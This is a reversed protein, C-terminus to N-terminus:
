PRGRFVFPNWPTRRDSRLTGPAHRARLGHDGRAVGGSRGQRGPRGPVFHGREGAGPGLVGDRLVTAPFRYPRGVAPLEEVAVSFLHHDNGDKDSETWPGSRLREPAGDGWHNESLLWSRVFEAVTRRCQERVLEMNRMLLVVMAILFIMVIVTMIDTFSPWFSESSLDGSRLDVFEDSM